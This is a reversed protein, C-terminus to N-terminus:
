SSRKGMSLPIVGAAPGDRHCVSATFASVGDPSLPPGSQPLGSTRRAKGELPWCPEADSLM